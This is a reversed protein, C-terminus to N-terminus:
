KGAKVKLVTLAAADVQQRFGPDAQSRQLTQAYMAAVSAPDACLVMTGGAGIFKTARDGLPWAALQKANCLDDSVIIGTFGAESRLMTRMVVPSFPAVNAPDIRDYYASSLMVWRVGSKIADHFPALYPDTRSTETDHVNASVDTNPGVRGLGPFHKAVPAVGADRLGSAMANGHESVAEPTFGFQRQFAGIPLNSPAFDPGPVTDLVPALDVNVGAQLLESGWTRADARLQAPSSGGQALAAPIASFGPGSLVQVKGGEQDTAVFVPIGGNSAAPAAAKLKAVLDATAAVGAQSRGALYINGVHNGLLAAVADTDSGNAQAATMFLQGVRQELTLAALQQEPTPRPPATPATPAPIAPQPTSPSPPAATTPSHGAGPGPAPNLGQRSPVSGGGPAAALQGSGDRPVDSRVLGGFVGIMLAGLAVATMRGPKLLQVM